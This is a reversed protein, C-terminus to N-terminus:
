NRAVYLKLFNRTTCVMSWDGQVRSLVLDRIFQSPHDPPVLDKPAPPFLNGQSVDWPRFTRKM